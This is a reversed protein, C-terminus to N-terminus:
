ASYPYTALGEYNVVCTYMSDWGAHATCTPSRDAYYTSTFRYAYGNSNKIFSGGGDSCWGGLNVNSNEYLTVGVKWICGFEGPYGDSYAGLYDDEADRYNKGKMCLVGNASVYNYWTQSRSQVTFSVSPKVLPAFLGGSGTSAAGQVMSPDIRTATRTPYTLDGTTPALVTEDTPTTSWKMHLDYTAEGNHIITEREPLGTAHELRLSSAYRQPAKEALPGYGAVAFNGITETKTAGNSETAGPPTVLMWQSEGDYIFEEIANPGNLSTVLVRYRGDPAVWAQVQRNVIGMPEGYDLTQNGEGYLWEENNAGAQPVIALMSFAMLVLITRYLKLHM